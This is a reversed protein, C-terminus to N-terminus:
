PTTISITFSPLGKSNTSRAVTVVTTLPYKVEGVTVTFSQNFSDSRSAPECSPPPEGWIGQTDSVYGPLNITGVTVDPYGFPDSAPVPSFNSFAEAFQITGNVIQNGSQDTPAYTLWQYGGCVGTAYISGDDAVINIDTGSVTTSHGNNPTKAEDIYVLHTPVQNFFDVPNSAPSGGVSATVGQNGGASASNTPTFTATMETDSSVSVNAVSIDSGADISPTGASFGTGTVTVNIATGVLGKAPSISKITPPPPTVTFQLPAPSAVSVPGSGDGPSVTADLQINDALSSSAVGSISVATSGTITMSTGGGAFQAAGTGNMTGLTLTITYGDPTTVTVEVPATGGQAVSSLGFFTVTTPIGDGGGGGGGGSSPGLCEEFDANWIYGEDECDQEDLGSGPDTIPPDQIIVGPQQITSSDAAKVARLGAPSRKAAQRFLEAITRDLQAATQPGLTKRLNEAERAAANLRNAIELSISASADKSLARADPHNSRDLNALARIRAAAESDTGDFRQAASQFALFQEQTLRLKPALSYSEGLMPDTPKGAIAARSEMKNELRFAWEYIQHLAAETRHTASGPHPLTQGNLSACLATLLGAGIVPTM